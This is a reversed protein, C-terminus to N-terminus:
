CTRLVLPIRNSFGYLCLSNDSWYSSSGRWFCIAQFLICEEPCAMMKRRSFNSTEMLLYLDYFRVAGSFFGNQLQHPHGLIKGPKHCHSSEPFQIPFILQIFVCGMQLSLYLILATGARHNALMKSQERPKAYNKERQLLPSMKWMREALTKGESRYLSVQSWWSWNRNSEGCKYSGYLSSLYKRHLSCSSSKSILCLNRLENM